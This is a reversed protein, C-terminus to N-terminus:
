DTAALARLDGEYGQLVGQAHTRQEPTTSNHLAAYAECGHRLWPTAPSGPSASTTLLGRLLWGRVADAAAQPVPAGPPPGNPQSAQLQRILALLERQRTRRQELSRQADFPSEKMGQRVLAVQHVSLTGYLSEYRDVLREVRADLRQQANGRLFDKEFNQNSKTQHRELHQLQAPTMQLALRALPEHGQDILRVLSARVDQYQACAQEGSLDRTAMAQWQKLLGANAPLESRRHWAAFRDMDQRLQASQADDLDAYGDVWWYLATPAQNYVVRIASCGSLAVATLALLWWRWTAQWRLHQSHPLIITRLQLLPRM